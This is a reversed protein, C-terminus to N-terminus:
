EHQVAVDIQIEAQTEPASVLFVRNVTARGAAPDVLLSRFGEDQGIIDQHRQHECESFIVFIFFVIRNETAASIAATEQLSGICTLSLEKSNSAFCRSEPSSLRIVNERSFPHGSFSYVRVYRISLSGESTRASSPPAGNSDPEASSKELPGTVYRRGTSFAPSCKAEKRSAVSNYERSDSIANM